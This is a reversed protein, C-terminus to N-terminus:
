DEGLTRRVDYESVEDADLGTIARYREARSGTVPAAAALEDPEIPGGPTTDNTEDDVPEQTGLTPDVGPDPDVVFTEEPTVETM